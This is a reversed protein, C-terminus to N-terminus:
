RRLWWLLGSFSSMSRPHIVSCIPAQNFRVNRSLNDESDDFGMNIEGGMDESFLRAVEEAQELAFKEVDRLAEM